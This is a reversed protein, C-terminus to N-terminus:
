LELGYDLCQAQGIIAGRDSSIGLVDTRRRIEKNLREDANNSWNAGFKNPLKDSLADFVRDYQAVLSEADPQHFISHLLTRM